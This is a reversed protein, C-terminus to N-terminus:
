YCTARSINASGANSLQLKFWLGYDQKPKSFLDCDRQNHGEIVELAPTFNGRMGGGM